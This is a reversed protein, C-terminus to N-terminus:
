IRAGILATTMIMILLDRRLFEARANSAITLAFHCSYRTIYQVNAAAATAASLTLWWADLVSRSVCCLVLRNDEEICVPAHCACFARALCVFFIYPLLVRTGNSSSSSNLGFTSYLKRDTWEIRLSIRVFQVDM